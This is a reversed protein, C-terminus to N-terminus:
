DNGLSIWHGTRKNSGVFKIRKDRRLEQIINDIDKQSLESFAQSFEKSSGKGNEKIHKLIMEKIKDRGLGAIKTYKGLLGRDKYYNKSLLYRTGRGVGIFSVIGTDLFKKVQEKNIKGACQDKIKELLILEDITLHIQKQAIIKELYSIFEMDKVTASLKLLVELESSESYNPIGKGEKITKEFILDAGQGSREVLGVKELTEALRRNRWESKKYINDPTIGALFGGPNKFVIQSPDQLIFISAPLKYDRHVVANLIAERMVDENFASINRRILGESLQITYNRINIKEWLEKLSLILPKRLNLRDVYKIEDPNNRYEFIIEANPIFDRIVSEKGLLLLACNNIKDKKLLGLDGLFQSDTIKEVLVNGSNKNKYMSRVVDIADSDLAEIGLDLIEASYDNSTENLINKIEVQGMEILEEGVRTLYKGHFSFIQGKQRSPVHVV